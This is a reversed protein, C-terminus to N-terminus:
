KNHKKLEIERYYDMKERFLEGNSPPTYTIANAGAKITELISADTPGGTAIIPVDPFRSRINRVVEATKAGCSINLIDAGANLKEAIDTLESLITIVIPIDINERVYAITEDTTPGNLVVGLAGQFEAHLAINASRKGHTLGGGVGCMVPIDSVSMLAQTITPMPTFPYVAIVADADTNKIIAVDTTFIFSKMRKGFVRIGSAERIVSPIKIYSNRLSGDVSPIKRGKSNIEMIKLGKKTKTVRIILNEKLNVLGETCIKEFKDCFLVVLFNFSVIM